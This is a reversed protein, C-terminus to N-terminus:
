KAANAACSDYLKRLFLGFGAGLNENAKKRSSFLRDLWGGGKSNISEIVKNITLDSIGYDLTGFLNPDITTKGNIVAFAKPNIFEVSRGGGASHEIQNLWRWFDEAYEEFKTVESSNVDIDKLYHSYWPHKDPSEQKNQLAAFVPKVIHLYALIFRTFQAFRQRVPATTEDEMKVNPLDIWQFKNQEKRAISYCHRGHAAHFFHLAGMAAFLDVVHADNCQNGAGVSFNRVQTMTEDGVFYISDFGGGGTDAYYRLAAKTNTLFNDSLAFLGSNRIDDATPTFSFYPLLLAGGVRVKGATCEAGFIEDHLLRAITPLGAAGTGGFISGALFIKVLRAEGVDSKVAAIFNKWDMQGALLDKTLAKEAMVAAGISPHGRFGANLNTSREDSTYLASYLKGVTKDKFATYSVVDDLKSDLDTPSWNVPDNLKLPTKLLPTGTGFDLRQFTELCKLLNKTRNLNGNGTDPDITMIHLTGQKENNPLLGMACLHTLSELVRSGSGGISIFYYGM